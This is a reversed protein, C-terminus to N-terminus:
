YESPSIGIVKKFLRSFYNPDKYGIAFCIEKISTNGEKIMRKAQEMRLQTVYDVFNVGLEEKFVRSFYQPSIGVVESVDQLRLDNAYNGQIYLLAAKMLRSVQAHGDEIVNETITLVKERLVHEIEYLKQLSLTQISLVEQLYQTHELEISKLQHNQAVREILVLLEALMNKVRVSHDVEQHLHSFIRQHIKEAEDVRGEEMAELLQNEDDKFGNQMYSDQVINLAVDKIHLVSAEGIRQLAKVSEAYSRSIQQIQYISGIGMRIPIGTIETVQKRVTDAQEIAIVRQGYEDLGSETYILVVVRNVMLPGVICRCKYKILHKLREYVTLATVSMGIRNECIDEQAGIEITMMYAYDKYINFLSHYTGIEKSFDQNMLISYIFGNELVPLVKEFKEQNELERARQKREEDLELMVKEIVDILKQKQIPKLVYDKVSLEVAQKAYDFHEYASIIICKVREDLAKVRRITEIGNLGPMQIDMLLIEPHYREHLEIAKRGSSATYIKKIKDSLHKELIFKVGELVLPEDDVILINYM